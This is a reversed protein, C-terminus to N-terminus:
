TLVCAWGPKAFGHKHCLWQRLLWPTEPMDAWARVMQLASIDMQSEYRQLFTRAQRQSCRASERSARLRQMFATKQRRAGLRNAGHQRYELLPEAICHVVGFCSSVLLLWWDHMFIDDAAPLPLARQRLAANGLCSCGLAHSMVLVQRLDRGWRPSLGLAHLFSAHLQRGACDVCRADSCVLLPRDSGYRRELRRMVQMSEALKHPYWVDDQDCLAFYGAKNERESLTLLRGVNGVVGLRAGAHLAIIDHRAAYAQLLHWTGDGSADDRVLIRIAVGHQALLSDLQERLFREGNWTPLLIDILPTGQSM